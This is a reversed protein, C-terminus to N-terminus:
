PNGPASFLGQSPPSYPPPVQVLYNKPDADYEPPNAGNYTKRYIDIYHDQWDRVAKALEHKLTDRIETSLGSAYDSVLADIYKQPDVVKVGHKHADLWEQHTAHTYNKKPKDAFQSYSAQPTASPEAGNFVTTIDDVIMGAVRSKMGLMDQMLTKGAKLKDTTRRLFPGKDVGKNPDKSDYEIVHSTWVNQIYNKMRAWFAINTGPFAFVDGPHNNVIRTTNGNMTHNEFADILPQQMIQMGRVNQARAIDGDNAIKQVFSPDNINRDKEPLSPDSIDYLNVSVGQNSYYEAMQRPTYQLHSHLNGYSDLQLGDRRDFRELVPDLVDHILHEYFSFNQNEPLAAKDKQAQSKLISSTIYIDSNIGFEGISELVERMIYNPAATKGLIFVVKKNDPNLNQRQNDLGPSISVAADNASMFTALSSDQPGTVQTFTGSVKPLDNLAM